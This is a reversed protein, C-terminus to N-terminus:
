IACFETIEELIDGVEAMEIGYIDDVVFFEIDSIGIFRFTELLQEQVPINYAEDLFFYDQACSYIIMVKKINHLPNAYPGSEYRYAWAQIMDIWAKVIAPVSYWYVPFVLLLVDAKLFREKNDQYFPFNELYTRSHEFFPIENKHEYLDLRDVIHGDHEFQQTAMKFAAHSFGVRNDNAVIAYVHKAWLCSQVTFITCLAIAQIIQKIRIM